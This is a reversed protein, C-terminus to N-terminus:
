LHCELNRLEIDWMVVDEREGELRVTYRDLAHAFGNEDVRRIIGRKGQLKRHIASVVIVKEEVHFRQPTRPTTPM